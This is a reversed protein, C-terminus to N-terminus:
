RVGARDTGLALTWVNGRLEGREFVVRDGRPSWDPYRVYVGPPAPPTIIGERGTAADVWRISWRGERLAAVAIRRGDPSWSRVWTQGRAHTLVRLEGTRVDVVGAHTSSGDKVEVAIAREDPSWAPYGAWVTNATLARPRYADLGSTYLIRQGAPPSVLSFAVQTMSPAPRWEALLGPPGARGRAGRVVTMDALPEARRTAIDVVWLGDTEGGSSRYAIRRSDPFWAPEGDATEASTVAMRARGDIDMVWVDPPEGSRSSMYAVRSGDPAITALSSRRSTDTTLPGASATASGDRGIPQTWIQSNLALGSFALRTGDPSIALGRVGPVGPVPIAQRAGAAARTAADFPVRVVFAEGAAAYIASADPAFVIEFLGRGQAIPRTEGSAIDLLWIGNEPGADSVAFAVIDGAPSWAPAAHGGIPHGARTIERLGGGDADVIWLTSGSQAGAASPTVDTHEDSQFVICTGDPSWAPKSGTPAIQRAVGGRAPMVWIGGRRSSHFALLRGDPSWAPQVNQGGDSTIATEIGSGGLARVYIEFAGSRDSAFALADGQPSFSPHLDLGAHTTQQVPWMVQHGPDAAGASDPRDIAATGDPTTSAASRALIAMALLALTAAMAAMLRVGPTTRVPTSATREVRAEGEGDPSVGRGSAAPQADTSVAMADPPSAHPRSPPVDRAGDTRGPGGTPVTETRVPPLWRYGRTPVTEIYRSERAEDGLARRLQAIVRTLAHDTVATEPWVADFLEQKSFLHGPRRVILALLDLAKPELPVPTGGRELRYADLDLRFDDWRYQVTPGLDPYTRPAGLNPGIM